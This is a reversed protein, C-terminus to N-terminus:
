STARRRAARLRRDAHIRALIPTPRSRRRRGKEVEKALLKASYAKGKEALELTSDILVVDMGAM